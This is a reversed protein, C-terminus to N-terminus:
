KKRVIFKRGKRDNRDIIDFKEQIKQAWWETPQIILHANRGDELIKTAPDVAVTFYGINAVVRQLDDLVQDIYEPEVHELVDICCVLEAPVPSSAIAPIGPDYSHVILGPVQSPLHKALNQQGAGYDLVQTINYVKIVKLLTPIESLSALGWPKRAHTRELLQRYEPSIM